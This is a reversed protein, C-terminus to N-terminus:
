MAVSNQKQEDIGFIMSNIESIKNQLEPNVTSDDVINDDNSTHLVELKTPESSEQKKQRKQRIIDTALGWTEQKTGDSSSTVTIFERNVWEDDDNLVPVINVRDNFSFKSDQSAEKLRELNQFSPSLHKHGSEVKWPAYLNGKYCVHNIKKNVYVQRDNGSKNM